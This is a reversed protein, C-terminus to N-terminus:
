SSSMGYCGYSWHVVATITAGRVWKRDSLLTQIGHSVISWNCDLVFDLTVECNVGTNDVPLTVCFCSLTFSANGSRWSGLFHSASKLGPELGSLANFVTAGCVFSPPEEPLPSSQNIGDCTVCHDEWFAPTSCLFRFYTKFWQWVGRAKPSTLDPM